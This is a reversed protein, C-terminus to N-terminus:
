APRQHRPRTDDYWETSVHHNHFYASDGSAFFGQKSKAEARLV